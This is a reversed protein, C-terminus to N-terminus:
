SAKQPGIFTPKKAPAPAAAADAAFLTPVQDILWAGEVNRFGMNLRYPEPPNAKMLMMGSATPTEDVPDVDFVLLHNWTISQLSGFIPSALVRRWTSEFVPKPFQKKFRDDFLSYADDYDGAKVLDGLKQVNAVIQDEDTHNRYSGYITKAGFFGGFGMSLLLGIAAIERGTQTGNSKSIQVWAWIGAVAGLVPLALFIANNFLVVASAIGLLISAIAMGNIAVYDGSGLGATISMKHLNSFPDPGAQSDPEGPKLNPGSSGTM